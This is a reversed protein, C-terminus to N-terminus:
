STFFIIFSYTMSCSGFAVSTCNSAPVNTPEPYVTEFTFQPFLRLLFIVLYRLILPLTTLGSVEVGATDMALEADDLRLRNTLLEGAPIPIM